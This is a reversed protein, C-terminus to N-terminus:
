LENNESKTEGKIYAMHGMQWHERTAEMTQLVYGCTCMIYGGTLRSLYEEWTPWILKQLKEEVLAIEAAHVWCPYPHYWKSDLAKAFAFGPGGGRLVDPHCGLNVGCLACHGIGPSMKAGDELKFEKEIEVMKKRRKLGAFM